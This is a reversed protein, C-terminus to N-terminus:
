EDGLRVGQHRAAIQVARGRGEVTGQADFRIVRQQPDFATAQSEGLIIRPLRFPAAAFRQCERATIAARLGLSASQQCVGQACLLAIGFCPRDFTLRVHVLLVIKRIVGLEGM